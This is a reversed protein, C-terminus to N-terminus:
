RRVVVRRAGLFHTCTPRCTALRRRPEPAQGPQGHAHGDGNSTARWRDSSAISDSTRTTPPPAAVIPLPTVVPPHTRCIRVSTSIVNLLWMAPLFASTATYGSLISHCWSARVPMLVPLFAALSFGTFSWNGPLGSGGLLSTTLSMGFVAGALASSVVSWALGVGIGWLWWDRRRIRGEFSFLLDKLPM